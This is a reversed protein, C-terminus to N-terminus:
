RHRKNFKSVERDTERKVARAKLDARQDSKEKGTALGLEVKVRHGSSREFEPRLEGIVSTLANTSLVKLDAAAVQSALLATGMLATFRM